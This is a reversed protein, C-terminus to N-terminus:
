PRNEPTGRPDEGLQHIVERGVLELLADRAVVAIVFESAKGADILKKTESKSLQGETLTETVDFRALQNQWGPSVRISNM